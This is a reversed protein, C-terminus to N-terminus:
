LYLRQVPQADEFLPMQRGQLDAIFTPVGLLMLITVLLERAEVPDNAPHAGIKDSKGYILGGHIGGGAMLISYCQPWHDRGGDKKVRPTRGFEGMAVVLTEGLLGRSELDTLLSALGANLKPLLHDKLSEQGKDHTDWGYGPQTVFRSFNV